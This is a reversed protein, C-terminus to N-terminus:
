LIDDLHLLRVGRDHLIFQARLPVKLAFAADRMARAWERDDVGVASPGIREWVIVVSESSTVERLLDARQVLLQAETLEGLDDTRTLANPDEPYGEMPILPEGLCGRADIFMLWVQRRSARELMRELLARLDDDDRLPRDNKPTNQDTM